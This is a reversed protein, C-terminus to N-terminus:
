KAGKLMSLLTLFYTEKPYEQKHHQPCGDSCDIQKPQYYHTQNCDFDIRKNQKTPKRFLWIIILGTILGLIFDWNM